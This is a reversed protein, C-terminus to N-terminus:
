GSVADAPARAYKFAHLELDAGVRALRLAGRDLSRERLEVAVLFRQIRQRVAGLLLRIPRQFTTGAHVLLANPAALGRGDVLVAVAAMAM